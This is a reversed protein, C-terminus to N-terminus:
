DKKNLADLLAAMKMLEKKAMAKGKETGHTFGLAIIEATSKWDISVEIPDLKTKMNNPHHPNVKRALLHSGGSIKRQVRRSERAPPSCPNGRQRHRTRFPFAPLGQSDPDM